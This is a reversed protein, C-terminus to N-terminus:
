NIQEPSYLTISKQTFLASDRHVIILLSLNAIGSNHNSSLHLNMGDIRHKSVILDPLNSTNTYVLNREDNLLFTFIFTAHKGSVNTGM